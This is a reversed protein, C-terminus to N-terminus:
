YFPKYSIGRCRNHSQGVGTSRDLSPNLTCNFYGAIIHQGAFSSISLFLDVFFTPDDINPGYLNVLNLNVSLLSGQVILYRGGRDKIVNKMQFPVTNHTLIM